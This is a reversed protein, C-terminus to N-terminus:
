FHILYSIYISLNFYIYVYEVQLINDHIKNMYLHKETFYMINKENRHKKTIKKVDNWENTFKIVHIYKYAYDTNCM